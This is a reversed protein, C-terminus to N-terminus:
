TEQLSRNSLQSSRHLVGSSANRSPTKQVVAAGSDINAAPITHLNNGKNELGIDFYNDNGDLEIDKNNHMNRSKNTSVGSKIM